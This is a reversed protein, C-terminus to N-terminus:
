RTRRRQASDFAVTVGAPLVVAGGARSRALQAAPDAQLAAPKPAPAPEVAAQAPPAAQAPKGLAITLGVGVIWDGSHDENFADAANDDRRYRADARM